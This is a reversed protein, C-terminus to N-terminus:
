CLFYDKGPKIICNLVSFLRERTKNDTNYKLAGITKNDTHITISGRNNDTNFQLAKATILHTSNAKM